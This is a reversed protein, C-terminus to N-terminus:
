CSAGRVPSHLAPVTDLLELDSHDLKPTSGLGLQLNQKCTEWNLQTEGNKASTQRSGHIECHEGTTPNVLKGQRKGLEALEM